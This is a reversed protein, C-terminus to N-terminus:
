LFSRTSVFTIVRRKLACVCVSVKAPVLRLQKPPFGNTYFSDEHKVTAQYVHRSFAIGAASRYRPAVRRKYCLRSSNPACAVHERILSCGVHTWSTRGRLEGM